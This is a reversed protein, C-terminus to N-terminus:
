HTSGQDAGRGSGALQLMLATLTLRANANDQIDRQARGLAAFGKQLKDPDSKVALAALEECRDRHVVAEPLFRVVLLDRLWSGVIEFIDQLKATNQALRDAFALIHAPGAQSLEALQAVVWDRLDIWGNEAMALARAYSGGSAAALTLAQGHAVGIQQVLLQALRARSLPSFHIRQCRSAVTPLLDGAAPATLILLTEAPPEELIKLFANAAAATMCQARSVIVVRMVAEHPRVSLADQLARIQEIRISSRSPKLRLVDRHTGSKIKRCAACQGCPIAASASPEAPSQRVRSPQGRDQTRAHCNCAMALQVATHRKGVGPIGTFLLAHPITQNQLFTRIRQIPKEQGVISSFGSM